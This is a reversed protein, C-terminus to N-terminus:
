TDFPIDEDLNDIIFGDDKHKNVKMLEFATKGEKIIGFKGEMHCNIYDKSDLGAGHRAVVPVLKRNGSKIGTEAIEEDSKHKFITFNSCLWLVRDSGSATDTSEKTIGDRNLQIFALMPIKYRTTFNHLSTMMFGLLQYEALNKDLGESDMLKLYDYVVVCKKATGDANLGVEKALWRRMIALQEEFPKGGINKHFYPIKELKDAADMVKKRNMISTGFQGTEIDNIEVRSMAALTRYQHDPKLMETDMNLVPINHEEAIYRGMNDALFTKGVKLRAGILTVTGDRLGGGIAMDFIPFGTPIGVQTLPNDALEELHEKAGSGLREPAESTDNLLSTFNFIKDEAIGLIHAVTEDGKVEILEQQAEELQSHMLKAIELKRIKAAFRRVNELNVPFNIIAQLHRVEDQKTLIYSIGMEHAAAHISPIDIKIKDDSKILHNLCRYILQNSEVNFTSEQIMDAVDYYADAGYRCIGALVARESSADSLIVSM